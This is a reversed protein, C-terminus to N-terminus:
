ERGRIIQLGFDENIEDITGKKVLYIGDTFRRIDKGKVKTVQEINAATQGVEEIHHGTVVVDQGKIKVETNGVIKARRPFKEGLFNKIVLEKDVVEATMPFHSYSIQLDYKFGYKLGKIMNKIHAVVTNLLARTSKNVPSGIVVINNGNKEFKLSHSKFNRKQEGKDTKITVEHKDLEVNIEEPIIITQIIEKETM